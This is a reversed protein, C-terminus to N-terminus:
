IIIFILLIIFVMKLIDPINNMGLKIAILKKYLLVHTQLLLMMKYLFM